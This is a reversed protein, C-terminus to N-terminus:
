LNGVVYMKGEPKSVDARGKKELTIAFAQAKRANKAKLLLREKKIFYEDAVMGLDVPQGDEIAWLQYQMDGPPAPLNNVMLYVDHATSDWFVTTYAAPADPTGKLSAMKMAPNGNTIKEIDAKVITLESKTSDYQAQLKTNKQSLNLNMYVSGALLLICAAAAYKWWNTKRLPVEAMHIVKAQNDAPKIEDWIKAKLNAAPAIANEMAQKELVLEFATRAEVLEPYQLCLQEFEKREEGSALGLVYTEVIGSSIYDQINM